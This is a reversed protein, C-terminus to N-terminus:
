LCPPVSLGADRVTNAARALERDWYCLEQAKALYGFQYFTPNEDDSQVIRDGGSWWLAAHRRDVVGRADAYAAEATSLADEAGAADGDVQLTVARYIESAFRARLQDIAMGDRVEEFVPDDGRLDTISALVAETEESMRALRPVAFDVRAREDATWVAAQDVRPRDPQSLIGIADGADILTDRGALFPAMRDDILADHQLDGLAVVADALTQGDSGWADFLEHVADGWAAPAHHAMRLTLVDNQWYGWEWGSSFLVHRPLPGAQARIRDIDTWRSRVYVPLYTPVSNDFAVWYASEPFYGVPEGAQLRDLLFARHEDFEDHLYAGGADEFLDYYMVSHVLPVADLYKALFYYQLEEGQYEVQLDDYNGVHIVTDVDLDPMAVRMRAIARSAVDVFAAPDEGSFEGFSLDIGDPDVAALIALRADVEAEDYDGDVLDFALQLNGSGFLQVGLSVTVGREHAYDVIQRTQETWAAAAGTSRVINDLAPYQLHNGRNKVLWDITRRARALGEDSPEWFDYTGEIPHLTHMQLGNREVEPVVVAGADVDEPDLDRLETPFRTYSPHVFRVGMAELTAALGFQQGLRDGGAVSIRRGDLDIRYAGAGLDPEETLVIARRHGGPDGAEYELGPHGVFAVFDRLGEDDPGYVTLETPDSRCALLTWLLM